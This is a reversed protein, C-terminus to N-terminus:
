RGKRATPAGPATAELIETVLGQFAGLSRRAAAGDYRASRARSGGAAFEADEFALRVRLAAKVDRQYLTYDVLNYYRWGAALLKLAADARAREALGGDNVRVLAEGLLGRLLVLFFRMLALEAAPADRRTLAERVEDGVAPAGRGGVEVLRRGLPTAECERAALEFRGEKLFGRIRKFGLTVEDDRPVIVGLHHAGAPIASIASAILLVVFLFGSPRPM